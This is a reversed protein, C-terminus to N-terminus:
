RRRLTNSAVDVRLENLLALAESLPVDASTTSMDSEDGEGIRGVELRRAIDEPPDLETVTEGTAAELEDAGEAVWGAALINGEKDHVVRMKM